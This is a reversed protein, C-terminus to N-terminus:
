LSEGARKIAEECFRQLKDAKLEQDCPLALVRLAEPRQQDFDAGLVRAALLYIVISTEFTLGYGRAREILTKAERETLPPGPIEQVFAIARRVFADFRASSLAHVQSSGIKMRDADM